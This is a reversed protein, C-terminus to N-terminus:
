GEPLVSFFENALTRTIPKRYHKLLVEESNGSEMACAALGHLALYYSAFSHRMVDPPWDTLDAEVRVAALRRRLNTLELGECLSLFERCNPTLHVIRSRRTKSQQGTLNVTGADHDIDSWQLRTLETPRIGAFLGLAVYAVLGADVSEAARILSQAQAPTLIEVEREEVIARPIADTPLTTMYRKGICWRCFTAMCTLYANRSVAGWQHTAMWVSLHESTLVTTALTPYAEAFRGVQLRLAKLTKPRVGQHQEKVVAFEKWAALLPVSQTANTANAQYYRVAETLTHGGESALELAALADIQDHEPLSALQVASAPGSTITAAFASAKAKTACWKRREKGHSM